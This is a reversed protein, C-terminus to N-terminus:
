GPRLMWLSSCHSCGGLLIAMAVFQGLHVATWIANAAYTAFIAHHNNADGGAHFLTVVIYLLQGGLLLMSSLRLSTRDFTGSNM